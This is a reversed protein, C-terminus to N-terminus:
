KNKVKPQAGTSKGKVSFKGCWDQVQVVPWQAVPTMTEMILPPNYRCFGALGYAVKEIAGTQDFYSCARCNKTNEM